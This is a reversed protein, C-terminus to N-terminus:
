GSKIQWRMWSFWKRRYILRYVRNPVRLWHNPTNLANGWAVYSKHKDNITVSRIWTHRM